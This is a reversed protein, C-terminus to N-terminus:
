KRRYYRRKGSSKRGYKSGRRSYKRKYSRKPSHCISNWGEIALTITLKLTDPEQFLTTSPVGKVYYYILGCMISIHNDAPLWSMEGNSLGGSFADPDSEVDVVGSFSASSALEQYAPFYDQFKPEKIVTENFHNKSPLPIRFSSDAYDELSFTSGYTSNGMLVLHEPTLGAGDIGKGQITSTRQINIQSADWAFEMDDYRVQSGVAGKLNKQAKWESFVNNWAKVGYHQTPLFRMTTTTAFGVDFDPSANYSRLSTGYGVIRFSNGQRIQRGLKQSLLVSLDIQGEAINTDSGQELEITTSIYHLNKSRAM